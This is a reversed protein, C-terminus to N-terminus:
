RSQTEKKTMSRMIRLAEEEEWERQLKLEQRCGPCKGSVFKKKHKLCIVM